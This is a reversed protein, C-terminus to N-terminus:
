CNKGMINCAEEFKKIISNERNKLVDDYLDIEIEKERCLSIKLDPTIYIDNNANCLTCRQNQHSKVVSCTCKELIIINKDNSYTYKRFENTKLRYGLEELLPVVKDISVFKESNIPYIEIIKLKAKITNAFEIMKKIESNSANLNKLLTMNIVIDLTPYAARLRKVNVIVKDFSNKLCSLVEYQTKDITHISINIRDVYEGIKLYRDLYYGNTTIDVIASQKKLEKVIDIIDDRLLPEGGTINVKKLGLSKNALKYIYNINTKDLLVKAKRQMGEKHCFECNYICDSTIIVRLSKSERQILENIGETLIEVFKKSASTLFENVYAICIKTKPLNKDLSIQYLVNNNLDNKVSLKAFYGIGLGKKVLDLMVETTPVEIMPELECNLNKELDKRTSLGTTPLLLPYKHLDDVKLKKGNAINKYKYNGVLCNEVEILEFIQVDERVSSIPYNDVIIDLMRKELMNVMETTSKNVIHFKIGPYLESFKKIFRSVLFTGIHTPFGIRIDGILLDTSDNLMRYGTIMTNYATEVYYLLKVAEATLEAGKATRNFLKCNLNEELQKLNRSVAPQSVCLSKAAGSISGTKAITFFTKYLNFDIDNINDM